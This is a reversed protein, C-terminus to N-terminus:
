NALAKLMEAAQAPSLEGERVARWIQATLGQRVPPQPVVVPKERGDHTAAAKVPAARWGRPGYVYSQKRIPHQAQVIDGAAIMEALLKRCRERNTGCRREIESQLVGPAKVVAELLRARVVSDDSRPVTTLRNKSLKAGEREELMYKLALVEASLLMYLGTTRHRRVSLANIRSPVGGILHRAFERSVWTGLGADGTIPYNKREGGLWAKKARTVAHTMDSLSSLLVPNARCLPGLTRIRLALGSPNRYVGTLRAFEECFEKADTIGGTEALTIFTNIHEDPWRVKGPGNVMFEENVFTSAPKAPTEKSKVPPTAAASHAANAYKGDIRAAYHGVSLSNPYTTLLSPEEAVVEVVPVADATATQSSAVTTVARHGNTPRLWAPHLLFGASVLGRTWAAKTHGVLAFPVNAERAKETVIKACTKIQDAIIVVIECGAPLRKADVTKVPLGTPWHQTLLVGFESLLRASMHKFTDTHGGVLLGVFHQGNAPPAHAASLAAHSTSPSSTPSSSATVNAM